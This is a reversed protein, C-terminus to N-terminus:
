ACGNRALQVRSLASKFTSVPIDRTRLWALFAGVTATDVLDKTHGIAVLPKLQDPTKRDEEILKEMLEVMERLTMRCFDFKLPYTFRLYDSLQATSGPNGNSQRRRAAANSKQQLAVRKATLMRWFPVMRTHIPMEILRGEPDERNVDNQFRWFYGNKLAPRYDLNHRRQVGGKFVSSDIRIGRAHLVEAVTTAPQFLWNGARFSLPTFDPDGLVTRLYKLSRDVVEAARQKPLTCLNYEAYDLHWTGAEHRANYWQPHLHLGIEFGCEHLELIQRQIDAIARDSNEAAIRELEAAEVFTVFKAGGAEFIERLRETPEYVLEKLSGEGNGYIEYDITFICEIM